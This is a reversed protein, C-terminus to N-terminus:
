NTPKYVWQAIGPFEYFTSEGIPAVLTDRFGYVLSDDTLKLLIFDGSGLYIKANANVVDWRTEFLLDDDDPDCKDNGDYVELQKGERLFTYIDDQACEPINYILNADYDAVEDDNFKFTFSTQSWSKSVDGTLILSYTAPTVEYKEKCGMLLFLLIAIWYKNSLNKM